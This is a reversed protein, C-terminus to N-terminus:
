APDSGGARSLSCPRGAFLCQSCAHGGRSHYRERAAEAYVLCVLGKTRCRLCAAAAPVGDGEEIRGVHSLARQRKPLRSPWAELPISYYRDVQEPRRYVTKAHSGSTAPRPIPTSVSAPLSPPATPVAEVDGSSPTPPHSPPASTRTPAEVLPHTGGIPRDADPTRRHPPVSREASDSRVVTAASARTRGQRAEDLGNEREDHRLPDPEDQDLLFTSAVEIIAQLDPDFDTMRVHLPPNGLLLTAWRRQFPKIYGVSPM